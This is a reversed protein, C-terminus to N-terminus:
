CRDVPGIHAKERIYKMSDSRPKRVWVRMAEFYELEKRRAEVVLEKVLPQGTVSDKFESNPGEEVQMDFLNEVKRQIKDDSWGESERPLIGVHGIMVRGDERLQARCGRIIAKCLGMPYTAAM